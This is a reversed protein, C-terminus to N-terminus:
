HAVDARSVDPSAVLISSLGAGGISRGGGGGAEGTLPLGLRESLALGAALALDQPRDGPNVPAGDPRPPVM